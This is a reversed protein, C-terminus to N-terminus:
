NVDGTLHVQIQCSYLHRGTTKQSRIQDLHRFEEQKRYQTCQSTM